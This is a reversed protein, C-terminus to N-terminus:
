ARRGVPDIGMPLIGELKPVNPNTVDVVYVGYDHEAILAYNRGDPYSLAAVGNVYSINFNKNTQLTGTIHPADPITVNVM